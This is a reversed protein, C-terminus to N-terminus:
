TSNTNLRRPSWVNIVRVSKYAGSLVTLPSRRAAECRYHIIIKDYRVFEVLAAAEGACAELGCVIEM